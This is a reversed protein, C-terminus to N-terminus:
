RIIMIKRTAIEGSRSKVVAIYVGSALDRGEDNRADWQYRAEASNKSFTAVRRGAANYIEISATTPLSDFIIGSTPDAADFSKGNANRGDLPVWPNPYIVLSQLNAAAAQGALVAFITFHRVKARVVNAVPDVASTPEKVWVRLADDWHYIGLTREAVATTGVNDNNPDSDAYPLALELTSNFTRLGDDRIFVRFTGGSVASLNPGIPATEPATDLTSVTIWVSGTVAGRPVSLSTGGDAILLEGATDSSFLQRRTHRGTGTDQNENVSSDTRSLTVHVIAPTTDVAGALDTGVARVDYNGDVLNSTNWYVSWFPGATDPNSGGTVAMPTWSGGDPRYEFQVSAYTDGLSAVVSVANGSVKENKLPTDIITELSPSADTVLVRVTTTGTNGAPDLARVLLDYTDGAVRTDFLVALTWLSDAVFAFPTSDAGGIPLLNAAVNAVATSDRALISLTVMTAAGNSVSSPTASAGLFIPPGTDIRRVVFSDTAISSNGLDDFAIVQWYWTDASLQVTTDASTVVTDVALPATFSVDTDVLLRYGALGSLSDVSATWDLLVFSSAEAGGVPSVLTPVSPAQLDVILSFNGVTTANGANDTATVKWLYSDNAPLLTTVTTATTTTDVVASGLMDTDVVLRYSIPPSSDSAATWAFAIILANTETGNAPTTLTFASPPQTDPSDRVVFSEPAIAVTNGLDDEAILRWWYTDSALALTTDDIPQFTDVATVTFATDRGVQIRFRRFGSLSDSSPNWLFAVPSLKTDGSKPAAITPASPPATDILLQFNGVARANGALDTATVKWLYTDNAPLTVTVFTDTVLTDIVASGALDTDIVLHYTVPPTSDLATSWRFVLRTATTEHANVPLTLSFSTPPTTDAAGRVVFTETTSVATNGAGDEAFIRFFYTDAGLNVTTDDLAQYADIVTSVFTGATDVQVHYRRLGSLTDTSPNWLLAIPSTSSDGKPYTIVPASPPVTDIVITRIPSSAATNGVDDVAIVRWWYTDNPALTRAASTAQGTSSDVIPSAFSASTDIQLRHEFLGSQTDQAASWSFFLATAKTETNAAPSLTTAAVPPTTDLIFFSDPGNANNGANDIAVIRWFCTDNGPVTTTCATVNGTASDIFPAAFSQATSVQLRYGALGSLSDVAVTWSFRVTTSRTETGQVPAIGRAVSPATSDITFSDVAASNTATNGVSDYALVRWYYISEALSSSLAIDTDPHATTETVIITGFAPSAAIEVRYEKVGTGSDSSKSWIFTPRSTDFTGATPKVHAVTDPPTSDCRLRLLMTDTKGATDSVTLTLFTDATHRAKIFFQATYPSASDQQFSSDFVASVRLSDPASSAFTVTMTVVQTESAFWVTDGTASTDIRAPALFRAPTDSTLAVTTIVPTDAATAVSGSDATWRIDDLYITASASPTVLAFSQVLNHWNMVGDGGAGANITFGSKPILFRQWTNAATVTVIKEAIDGAGYTSEICRVTFSVGAVSSRAWFAFTDFPAANMPYTADEMYAVAYAGGGAKTYVLKLGMDGEAMAIDSARNDSTMADGGGVAVAWPPQHGEGYRNGYLILDGFTITQAPAATLGASTADIRVAELETDAMWTSAVGSEFSLTTAGARLSNTSKTGLETFSLTVNGTTGRSIRNSDDLAWVSVIVTEGSAAYGRALIKLKTATGWLAFSDRMTSYATRPFRNTLTADIAVLGFWEENFAPDSYNSNTSSNETNHTSNSGASYKWWEDLFEFCSSGILVGASDESQNKRILHLQNAITSNQMAQDESASGSNYADCGHESFWLPKSSLGPYTSFTTGFTSGLYSNAGWIDLNTMSADNSGNVASGLDSIDGNASAVPHYTDESHADGAAANLLAYWASKSFGDYNEENGFNWFLVAADDKHQRVMNKFEKRLLDQTAANSWDSGGPPYLGMIVYLGHAAASDVVWDREVPDYTRISNANMAKLYRFDQRYTSTADKWWKYGGGQGVPSSAYAAGRVTFAAGDVLLKRGSVSVNTAGARAPVPPAIAIGISALTVLLLAHFTRQRSLNM